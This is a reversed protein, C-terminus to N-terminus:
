LELMIKGIHASSEMMAHAQAAQALPFTHHIVPRIKGAELLPWVRERLSAAIAAKFAVPRPRLTSGTITLRRRMVQGMDLQGKSGGLQAIFVLRGDDALTKIERPLYDGGVMDLIVDVGRGGTLEKVVAEFDETKYNIAREAGLEECARCKDASGATAFVRHGLARAIQIATVGIGSSGGQVLLTEGESLAGRDFVNSWVTFYNEPLAAAQLASLGKPVPLCQALPAACYEAYGGGQVLACVLDGKRLGSGALDGDVIEGAVELGPLDSAGPPVPYNGTRQFVDPRNVGAAHVKILVEGQKLEPLPRQCLQLVEPGGYEKIEIAQM